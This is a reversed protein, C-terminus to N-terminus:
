KNIFKATTILIKDNLKEIKVTLNLNGEVRSSNDVTEIDKYGMKVLKNLVEEYPLGIFEDFM